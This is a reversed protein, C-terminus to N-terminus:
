PTVPPIKIVWPTLLPSAGMPDGPPDTNPGRETEPRVYNREIVKITEGIPVQSVAIATCNGTSVRSCDRGVYWVYLKNGNQFPNPGLPLSAQSGKLQDDEINEVGQLVSARNISLSVYTANGTETALTGAIAYLTRGVDTELLLDASGMYSTDQNDALCNMTNRICDPGVMDIPYVRQMDILRDSLSAPVPAPPLGWAARVNNGLANLDSSLAGEDESTRAEPHEFPPYPEPERTPDHSRVRLAILPLDQRWKDGQQKDDPMAYRIMPLFDDALPDLGVTVSSPIPETLINADAVGSKALSARVARDMAQDPTSIFSRDKGFFPSSQREAVVDNISNSISALSMLRGSPALKYFVELMGPVNAAMFEYPPATTDIEGVRTFQYTQYGFYRAPPPMRGVILLAERPDFRFAASYGDPTQGFAGITTPDVYEDDWFPVVPQVYPATPNNAFCQGMVKIASECDAISFLKLYGRTVQYGQGRLDSTVAQALAEIEPPVNNTPVSDPRPNSDSSSGCAAAGVSLLALFRVLTLLRERANM